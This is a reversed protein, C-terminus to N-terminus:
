SPRPGEQSGLQQLAAALRAQLDGVEQRLQVNEGQLQEQQELQQQQAQV